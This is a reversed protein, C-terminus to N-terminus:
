DAHAWLWATGALALFFVLLAGWAGYRYRSALRDSDMDTIIFSRGDTPAILRNLDPMSAADLRERQVERRAAARALDWEQMSLDNSRDLDFRLAEGTAKWDALKDRVEENLSPRDVSQSYTIFHGLAHIRTGGVLLWQTTRTDGQTVVDKSQATVQAGEPDVYCRSGDDDEVIFSADSVEEDVKEWNQERRTEIVVRYWLCPLSHLPSLLPTGDLPRGIGAIEIYGQPASKIPSCPTDALARYRRHNLMWVGLAVLAAVAGFHWAYLADFVTGAGFAAFIAAIGAILPIPSRTLALTM